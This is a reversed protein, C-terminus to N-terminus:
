AHPMECKVNKGMVSYFKKGNTTQLMVVKIKSLKSENNSSIKEVSELTYFLRDEMKRIDQFTHSKEIIQRTHELLVLRHFVDKWVRRKHGHSGIIHNWGVNTFYVYEGFVPCFTSKYSKYKDGWYKKIHKTHNM